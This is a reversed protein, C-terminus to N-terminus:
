WRRPGCGCRAGTGDQGASASIGGCFVGTGKTEVAELPALGSVNYPMEAFAYRRTMDRSMLWSEGFGRSCRVREAGSREGSLRWGNSAMRFPTTSAAHVELGEQPRSRDSPTRLREFRPSGLTVAHKAPYRPRPLDLRM